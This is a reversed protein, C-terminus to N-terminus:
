HSKTESEVESINANDNREYDEKKNTKGNRNAAETETHHKDEEAMIDAAEDKTAIIAENHEYEHHQV